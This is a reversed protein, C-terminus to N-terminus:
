TDRFLKKSRKANGKEVPFGWYSLPVIVRIRIQTWFPGLVGTNVLLLPNNTLLLYFNLHWQRIPRWGCLYPHELQFLYVFHGIIQNKHGIKTWFPEFANVKILVLKLNTVLPNFNHHWQRLEPWDCSHPQELKVLVLQIETLLPYFNHHCQRVKLLGCIYPYELKLLYM